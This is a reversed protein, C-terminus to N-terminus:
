RIDCIFEFSKLGSLFIHKVNLVKIQHKSFIKGLYFKISVNPKNVSLLGDRMMKMNSSILRILVNIFMGICEKIRAYHLLWM